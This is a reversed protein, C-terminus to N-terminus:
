RTIIGLSVSYNSFIGGSLLKLHDGTRLLRTDLGLVRVLKLFNIM